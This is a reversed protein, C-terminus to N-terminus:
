DEITVGQTVTLAGVLLPTREGTADDVMILDFQYVGPDMAARLTIDTVAFQLLRNVADLVFITQPSGISSLSLEPTDNSPDSKFDCLFHKGTFSWSTDGVVGFRWAPVFWVNNKTTIAVSAVM